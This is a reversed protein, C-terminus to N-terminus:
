RPSRTSGPSRKTSISRTESGRCDNPAPTVSLNKTAAKDKAGAGFPGVIIAWRKLAPDPFLGLNRGTPVASNEHWMEQVALRGLHELFIKEMVFADEDGAPTGAEAFTHGM